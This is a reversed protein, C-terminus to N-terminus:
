KRFKREFKLCLGPDPNSGQDPDLNPRFEPDQDSNLANPDM